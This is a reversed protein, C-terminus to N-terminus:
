RDPDTFDSEAVTQLVFGSNKCSILLDGDHASQYVGSELHDLDTGEHM